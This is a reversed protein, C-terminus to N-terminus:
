SRSRLVECLLGSLATIQQLISKWTRCGHQFTFLIVSTRSRRGGGSWDVFMAQGCNLVTEDLLARKDECAQARARLVPVLARARALLEVESVGQAGQVAPLIASM